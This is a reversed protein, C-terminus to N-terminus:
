GVDILNFYDWAMREATFKQQYRCLGASGMRRRLRKDQLLLIVKESLADVDTHSVVYGSEGDDVVEPLGGVDTVVVPCAAAMAEVVTYGFSEQEQSPLVLVDAISLLNPLDCRHGQLIIHKAATSDDRLCRVESMEAFNGDGCILLTAEPVHKIIKEMSRIMLSHGKRPEYVAPMLILNAGTPLELECSPVLEPKRENFDIGNYIFTNDSSALISRASLTLMCAQSVTVFGAAARAVLWDIIKEKIRRLPNASYPLVLNHFNHWARPGLGCLSWGITAALCADGGPYGGNIVMLRSAGSCRFM